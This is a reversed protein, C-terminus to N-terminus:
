EIHMQKQGQFVERKSTKQGNAGKKGTNANKHENVEDDSLLILNAESLKLSPKLRASGTVSAQSQMQEIATTKHQLSNLDDLM